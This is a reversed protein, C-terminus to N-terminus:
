EQHGIKKCTLCAHVRRCKKENSCNRRNWNICIERGDHWTADSRTRRLRNFKTRRITSADFNEGEAEVNRDFLTTDQDMALALHRDEDYAMVATFDYRICLNKIHDCYFNLEQERDKYIILVAEACSRFALIWESIDNFRNYTLRKRITLYGEESTQLPLEEHHFKASAKMNKYAFEQLEIYASFAISKWLRTTLNPKGSLMEIVKNGETWNAVWWLRKSEINAALPNTFGQVVPLQKLTTYNISPYKHAKNRTVSLENKANKPPIPDIVMDSM